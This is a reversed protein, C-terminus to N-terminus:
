FQIPSAGNICTQQSAPISPVCTNSGFIGTSCTLTFLQNAFNIYCVNAPGCDATISCPKGINNTFTIKSADCKGDNLKSAPNGSSDFPLLSCDSGATTVTVDIAASGNYKCCVLNSDLPSQVTPTTININTTLQPNITNLIIFSALAIILGLVAGMIWRKASDVQSMNGGSTLWMFGGWTLVVFALIAVALVGFQYLTTVCTVITDGNAISCEVTSPLITTGQAHALPAVIFSTLIGLIINKARIM